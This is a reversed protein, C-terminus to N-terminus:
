VEAFQSEGTQTNDQFKYAKDLKEQGLKYWESNFIYGRCQYFTATWTTWFISYSLLTEIFCEESESSIANTTQDCM